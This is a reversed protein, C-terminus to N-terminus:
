NQGPDREPAVRDADAEDSVPASITSIKRGSASAPGLKWILKAATVAM